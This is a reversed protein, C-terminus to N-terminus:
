AHGSHRWNTQSAPAQNPVPRCVLWVQSNMWGGLVSVPSFITREIHFARAIRDRLPRWNFGYHSHYATGLGGYVPRVLATHATAFVMRLADGPSYTEYQDYHALGQWGAIKRVLYKVPFVAGTEVPVSIIITGDRACLRNLDSLVKDIVINWRRWAPSSRM